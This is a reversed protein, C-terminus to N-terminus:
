KQTLIMETLDGINKQSRLSYVHESKTWFWNPAFYSQEGPVEGGDFVSQEISRNLLNKRSYGDCCDSVKKIM